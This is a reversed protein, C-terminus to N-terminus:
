RSLVLFAGNKDTQLYIFSTLGIELLTVGYHLRYLYFYKWRGCNPQWPKRESCLGEDIRQEELNWIHQGKICAVNIRGAATSQQCSYWKTYSLVERIGTVDDCFWYTLSSVCFWRGRGETWEFLHKFQSQERTKWGVETFIFQLM